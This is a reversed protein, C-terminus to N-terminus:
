CNEIKRENKLVRKSDHIHALVNPNYVWFSVRQSNLDYNQSQKM